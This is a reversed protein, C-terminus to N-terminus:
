VKEHVVLQRYKSISTCITFIVAVLIIALYLVFVLVIGQTTINCMLRLWEVHALAGFLLFSFISSHNRRSYAFGLSNIYKSDAVPSHMFLLQGVKSQHAVATLVLETEAESICIEDRELRCAV